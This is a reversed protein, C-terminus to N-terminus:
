FMLLLPLVTVLVVSLCSLVFGVIAGIIAGKGCSRAKLPYESKWVLYLILGVIPVFFCLVAFGGSPADLPNVGASGGGAPAVAARVVRPRKPFLDIARAILAALFIFDLLAVILTAGLAGFMDFVWNVLPLVGLLLPAALLVVAVKLAVTRQGAKKRNISAFIFLLIAAALVVRAPVYFLSILTQYDSISWGWGTVLFSYSNSLLYGIGSLLLFATLAIDALGVMSGGMRMEKNWRIERIGAILLVLILPLVLAAGVVLFVFGDFMEMLGPIFQRLVLWVVSTVILAIGLRKSAFVAPPQPVKARAPQPPAQQPYAQPAPPAPQAQPIPQSPVAATDAVPAQPAAGVVEGCAPCFRAGDRV